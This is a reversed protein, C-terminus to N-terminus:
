NLIVRRKVNKMGVLDSIRTTSYQCNDCKYMVGLKNLYSVYRKFVCRLAIQPLPPPFPVKKKSKMKLNIKKM